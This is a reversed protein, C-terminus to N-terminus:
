PKQSAHYDDLIQRVQAAEPGKPDLALYREYARMANETQGVTAYAVGLGRWAHAFRPDLRVAENLHQIANPYQKKKLFDIALNYHRPADLAPTEPAKPEPTSRAQMRSRSADRLGRAETDGPAIALAKEAERLAETFNGANHAKWGQAVYQRVLRAQATPLYERARSHYVSEPAIGSFLLVALYNEQRDLARLAKTFDSHAAKELRATERLDRAEVFDPAQELLGTLTREAQAWSEAAMLQRAEELSQELAARTREAQAAGPAQRPAEVEALVDAPPPPAPIAAEALPAPSEPPPPPAQPWFLVLALVLLLAAVGGAVWLAQSKRAPADDEAPASNRADVVIDYRGSNDPQRAAPLPTHSLRADHVARNVAPEPTQDLDVAPLMQTPSDAEELVDSLDPLTDQEGDTDEVAPIMVTAANHVPAPPPEAPPPAAPSEPPEQLLGSVLDPGEFGEEGAELRQMELRVEALTVPDIEIRGLSDGAEELRIKYDGIEVLDGPYLATRRSVRNGNLIVGNYSDLDDIFFQDNERRLLAHHRSINRETLRITNGDKRGISIEDRVLPVVVEYGDEDAIRLRLM